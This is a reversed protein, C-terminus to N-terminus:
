HCCILTMNKIKIRIYVDLTTLHMLSYTTEFYKVLLRVLYSRVTIKKYVQSVRSPANFLFMSLLLSM